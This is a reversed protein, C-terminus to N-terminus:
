YVIAAQIFTLGTGVTLSCEIKIEDGAAANFQKDVMTGRIIYSNGSDRNDQVVSNKYIKCVGTATGRDYFAIGGYYVVGDKPMTFTKIDPGPQYETSPLDTFGRYAEASMKYVTKNGSGYTMNMIM